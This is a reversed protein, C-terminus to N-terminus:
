RPHRRHHHVSTSSCNRILRSCRLRSFGGDAEEEEERGGAVVVRYPILFMRTSAIESIVDVGGIRDRFDDLIVVIIICRQTHTHAATQLPLLRLLPTAACVASFHRRRRRGLCVALGPWDLESRCIEVEFFDFFYMQCHRLFVTPFHSFYTRYVRDLM